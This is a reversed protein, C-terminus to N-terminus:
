IACSDGECAAAPDGSAVTLPHQKAWVEDLVRLIAESSQAGSIGFQRDIVFFPVGTVGLDRAELEDARVERAYRDSELVETSKAADLGIEEGLRVLTDRDGIAAGETFYAVFLREKLAVQLGVEYAYHL